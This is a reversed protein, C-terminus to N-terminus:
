SGRMDGGREKELEKTLWPHTAHRPSAPAALLGAAPGQWRPPHTHTGPPQAGGEGQRSSAKGKEANTQGSHYYGM